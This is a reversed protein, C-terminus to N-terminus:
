AYIGVPLMIASPRTAALEIIWLLAVLVTFWWLALVGMTTAFGAKRVTYEWNSPVLLLVWANILLLLGVTLITEVLGFPWSEPMRPAAMRLIGWTSILALGIVTRFLEFVRVQDNTWSDPYRYPMGAYQRRFFVTVRILVVGALVAFTGLLVAQTVPDLDPHRLTREKNERSSVVETEVPNKPKIDRGEYNVFYL